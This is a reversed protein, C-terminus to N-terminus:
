GESRTLRRTWQDAETQHRAASDAQEMHHYAKALLRHANRQGWAYSCFQALQLAAEADDRARSPERTPLGLRIRARQILADAHVLRYKRAAALHLARECATLAVSHQGLGLWMASETVLARALDYIMHGRVFTHRAAVLHQEAAKWRAEVVDVWGLAWECRGVDELWQEDECIKGNAETLSRAGAPRNSRLLHEAWYIAGRSYLDVGDIRNGIANAEAFAADASVIDGLLSAVHGAVSLAGRIRRDEKIKRALKLVEALHERASALLGLSVETVGLDTLGISLNKWDKAERDQHVVQPYFELATEPEGAIDAWLAVSCLYFGL